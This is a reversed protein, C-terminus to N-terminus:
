TSEFHLIEIRDGEESSIQEFYIWMKRDCCPCHHLENFQEPKPSHPKVQRAYNECCHNLESM